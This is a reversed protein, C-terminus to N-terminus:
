GTGWQLFSDETVETSDSEELDNIVMGNAVLDQKSFISKNEVKPWIALIGNATDFRKFLNSSNTNYSEIKFIIEKNKDLGVYACPIQNNNCLVTYTEVKPICFPEISIRVSVCDKEKGYQVVFSYLKDHGSKALSNLAFAEYEDIAEQLIKKPDAEYNKLVVNPRRVQTIISNPASVYIQKEAVKHKQLFNNSNSNKNIKYLHDISQRAKIDFAIKDIGVDVITKLSGLHQVNNYFPWLATYVAFELNKGSIDGGALSLLQLHGLLNYLANKSLLM